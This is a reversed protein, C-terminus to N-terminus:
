NLIPRSGLPNDGDPTSNQPQLHGSSAPSLAASGHHTLIGHSQHPLRCTKRTQSTNPLSVSLASCAITTRVNRGTPPPPALSPDSPSGRPM